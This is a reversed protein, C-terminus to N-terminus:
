SESLGEGFDRELGGFTVRVAHILDIRVDPLFRISLVDLTSLDHVNQHLTVPCLQRTPVTVLEIHNNTRVKQM